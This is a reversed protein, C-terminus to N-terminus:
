NVQKVLVCTGISVSVSALGVAARDEFARVCVCVCVCWTLGMVRRGREELRCAPPQAVPAQARVFRRICERFESLRARVCERFQAHRPWVPSQATVFREIRMHSTEILHCADDMCVEVVHEGGELLDPNLAAYVLLM